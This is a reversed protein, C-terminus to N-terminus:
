LSKGEEVGFSCKKPNLKMNIRRLNNFTEAVDAIMEKETKIKVVMDDVYAELNQCDQDIYFATKEEYEEAMKVQHYGKIRRPLVEPSIEHNVKNELRYFTSVTDPISAVGDPNDLLRTLFNTDADPSYDVYLFVMASEKRM